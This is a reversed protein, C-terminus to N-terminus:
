TMFYNLICLVVVARYLLWTFILILPFNHSKVRQRHKFFMITQVIALSVIAPTTIPMALFTLIKLGLFLCFLYLSGILSVHALHGFYEYVDKRGITSLVIGQIIFQGLYTLGDIYVFPWRLSGHLPITSFVKAIAVVMMWCVIIYLIRNTWSRAPTCSEDNCMMTPAIIRRNYSLLNYFINLLFIIPKWKLVNVLWPYKHSIIELISDIGYFVQNKTANYYAIKNMAQNFDILPMGKDAMCVQVSRREERAILGIDVMRQSYWRCMSCFEDYMLVSHNLM